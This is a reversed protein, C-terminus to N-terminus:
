KWVVKKELISSSYWKRVGKEHVFWTTKPVSSWKSETCSSSLYLVRKKLPNKITTLGDESLKPCVTVYM